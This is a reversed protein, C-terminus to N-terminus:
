FGTSNEENKNDDKKDQLKSPHWYNVQMEVQFEEIANTSEYNLEIASLNTPFISFFTYHAIPSLGNGEYHSLNSGTPDKETTDGSAGSAPTAASAAPTAAAAAHKRGLQTVLANKMYGQPNSYGSADSYQAIEQMWLEFKKRIAFDEDNIVTITWPEFTRDGAVKLIRGRFPVDISAVVSAPIAAAKCLYSFTDDNGFFAPIEVKFLNPRAGGGRLRSKFDNITHASGM